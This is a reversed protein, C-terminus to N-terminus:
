MLQNPSPTESINVCLSQKFLIPERKGNKDKGATIFLALAALGMIPLVFPLGLLTLTLDMARKNRWAWNGPQMAATKVDLEYHQWGPEEGLGSSKM